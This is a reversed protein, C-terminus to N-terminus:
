DGTLAYQLAMGPAMSARAVGQLGATAIDGAKGALGKAEYEIDANHRRLDDTSAKKLGAEEGARDNDFEWVKGGQDVFYSSV